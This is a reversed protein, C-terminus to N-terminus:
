RLGMNLGVIAVVLSQVLYSLTMTLVGPREIQVIDDCSCSCGLPDTEGSAISDCVLGPFQGENTFACDSTCAREEVFTGNAGSLANNIDAVAGVNSMTKDLSCVVDGETYGYADWNRSFDTDYLTCQLWAESSDSWEKLTSSTLITITGQILRCISVLMAIRFLRRKQGRINRQAQTLALTTNPKQLSRKLSSHAKSMKLWTLACYVVILGGSLSFSLYEAPALSITPNKHHHQHHHTHPPPFRWMFHLRLLLWEELMSAFRMSCQFSHRAVNLVGNEVESSMNAESDFLYALVLIV